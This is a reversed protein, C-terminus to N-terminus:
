ERWLMQCNWPLAAIQDVTLEYLSRVYQGDGRGYHKENAPRYLKPDPLHALIREYVDQPFVTELYIHAFPAFEAPTRDIRVLLHQLILTSLKRSQLDMMATM